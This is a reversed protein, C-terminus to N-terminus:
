ARGRRALAEPDMNTRNQRRSQPWRKTGFFTRDRVKLELLIASICVRPRCFKAEDSPGSYDLGSLGREYFSVGRFGAALSIGVSM